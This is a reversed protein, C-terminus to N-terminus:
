IILIDAHILCVCVCVFSTSFRYVIITDHQLLPFPHLLVVGVDKELLDRVEELNEPLTKKKESFSGTSDTLNKELYM